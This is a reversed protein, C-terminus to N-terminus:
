KSSNLKSMGTCNRKQPHNKKNKKITTTITITKKNKEVKFVSCFNTKKKELRMSDNPQLVCHDCNGLLEKAVPTKLLIQM